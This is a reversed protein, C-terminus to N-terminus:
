QSISVGSELISGPSPSPACIIKPETGPVFYEYRPTTTCSINKRVMSSPANFPQPPKDKVLKQMTRAWIPSAGTVGSVVSSMPSNDNNGVWTSVLYDQSYGFTWNDRLNNTTGTKVAINKGPLGLISNSGFAPARALPDSLISNIQYAVAPSLLESQNITPPQHNLSLFNGRSDAVSLIPTLPIKTGGNAFVTYVSALDVMTIEGGGLTLSLGFRSSNTWTSIGLKQAFSVLNEVGLSNLIKVAPVNYSSGLATRITVPGHFKDDYNKPCYNPQGRVVFCIPSDDIITGPSAGKSLALAYTLPKIASGPQRQQLTINVQGDRSTDFFDRSGVMALIEGTKPNIILGAGNQVNLNKLKALEANIEEQLMNHLKLDLSTTVSLGGRAVKDEGFEKVLLDRIYMVFHPARITIGQPNFVLPTDLAQRYEDETIYKNDLMSKLVQLQRIKGLYPNTGFPSYTTPAVPLGALMASEPLNLDLSSKGFYTWSAEEIGHATGGYSVQNLYMELIQDKEYIIETEYSLILEKLKRTFSKEPSLLANKVLQQTITSGGQPSCTSFKFKCNVINNYLARAIGSLDYGSHKYFNKDEAALTAKVLYDPLESLTILSRNEDRYIQYLLEGHRDYIKTTLSPPNTTLLRASPLDRFIFWYCFLALSLIALAIYIRSLDIQPFKFQPLEVKPLNLQPIVLKPRKIKSLFALLSFAGVLIASVLLYLPRGIFKLINILLHM